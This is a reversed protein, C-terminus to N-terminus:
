LTQPEICMQQCLSELCCTRSICSLALDPLTCIFGHRCSCVGLCRLQRTSRNRLSMQQQFILPSTNWGYGASLNVGRTFMVKAVPCCPARAPNAPECRSRRLVAEQREREVPSCARECAGYLDGLLTHLLCFVVELCALQSYSLIGPSNPQILSSGKSTSHMVSDECRWISSTYPCIFAFRPLSPHFSPHHLVDALSIVTNGTNASLLASPIILGGTLGRPHHRSGYPTTLYTTSIHSIGTGNDM